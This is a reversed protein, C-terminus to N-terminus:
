KWLTKLIRLINGDQTLIAEPSLIPAGCNGMWGSHENRSRRNPKLSPGAERSIESNNASAASKLKVEGARGPASHFNARKTDSHFPCTSPEATVTRVVANRSRDPCLAPIDLKFPRIDTQRQKLPRLQHCFSGRKEFFFRLQIDWSIQSGM